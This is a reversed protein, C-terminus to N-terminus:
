MTSPTIHPANPHFIGPSRSTAQNYSDSPYKKFLKELKPLAAIFLQLLLAPTRTVPSSQPISTRSITNTLPMLSSLSLALHWLFASTWPCLGCDGMHAEAGAGGWWLHNGGTAIMLTVNGFCTCSQIHFGERVALM